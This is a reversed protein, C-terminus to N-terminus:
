TILCAIRHGTRLISSRDCHQAVVPRTGTSGHSAAVLVSGGLFRRNPSQGLSSSPLYRPPYRTAALQQGWQSSGLPLRLPAGPSAFLITISNVQRIWKQSSCRTSTPQELCSRFKTTCYSTTCHKSDTVKVRNGLRWTIGGENKFAVIMVIPLCKHSEGVRFKM